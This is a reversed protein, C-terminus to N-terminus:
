QYFLKYSTFTIPYLNNIHNISSVILSHLSLPFQSHLTFKCEQNANCVFLGLLIKHTDVGQMDPEIQKHLKGVESM